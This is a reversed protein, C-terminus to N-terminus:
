LPSPGFVVRDMRVDHPEVPLAGVQQHAYAVGIKVARFGPRSLYKDYYGRGRGMREGRATFAVGPVVILDIEEPRCPEGRQPELIGFAGSALEEPRYEYFEMEEGEVRPLLLRKGASWRALAADTAPEDPLASFFAVTRARRFEEALEVERFLRQSLEERAAPEVARNLARMRRRIEQKTEM